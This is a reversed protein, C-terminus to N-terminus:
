RLGDEGFIVPTLLKVDRSVFTGKDQKHSGLHLAVLRWSIIKFLIVM